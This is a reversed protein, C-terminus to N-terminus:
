PHGDDLRRKFMSLMLGEASKRTQLYLCPLQFEIGVHKTVCSAPSADPVPCRHSWPMRSVTIAGPLSMSIHRSATMFSSEAPLSRREEQLWLLDAPLSWFASRRSNCKILLWRPM